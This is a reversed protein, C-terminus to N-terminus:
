IGRRAKIEGRRIARLLRERDAATQDAYAFAFKRLASDLKPSTGSYGSLAAPDGTRAHAKAFLQGCVVAYQELSRASLEEPTVAAKHDALQRVLYDRGDITTWGLFPDSITQMRHQARAVRHGQHIAVGSKRVYPEYCSPPEEKVQLFLIDKPAAGACYVVYDRTGLSGVGVAKFAADVPRYAALVLQRDHSITDRYRVLAALVKRRTAVDLPELLPPQRVFRRRGGRSPTTLKELTRQPTEREAKRLTAGVPNNQPVSRIEYRFLHLATMRSFEALSERYARAFLLVAEGSDRDRDGAERGALVISTALRKLDWEFPGHVSEDFDNIDFVLHGDPAAYAGLNKVHADGCIQVHLGTRPLAALDAAMVAAAGRFFGFPSAAMRGFKIPLISELRGRHIMRLIDLPDARNPKAKWLGQEPRPLHRRLKRGAKERDAFSEFRDPVPVRRSRASRCQSCSDERWPVWHRIANSGKSQAM